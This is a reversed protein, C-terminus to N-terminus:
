FSLNIAVGAITAMVYVLLYQKSVVGYRQTTYFSLVSVVLLTSVLCVYFYPNTLDVGFTQWYWRLFEM